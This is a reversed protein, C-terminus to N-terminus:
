RGFVQVEALSLYGTGPLQVRVIRGSTGAVYLYLSASGDLSAVPVQMVSPDALLQALTSGTM